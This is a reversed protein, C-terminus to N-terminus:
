RKAHRPHRVLQCKMSCFGKREAMSTRYLRGREDRPRDKDDALGPYYPKSCVVCEVTKRAAVAADDRKSIESM